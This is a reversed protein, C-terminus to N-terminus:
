RHRARYESPTCGVPRHFIRNFFSLETFGSQYSVETIPENGGALERCAAEIRLQQLVEIFTKGVHKKFERAFTARSMHTVQLMHALRIKERFHELLHHLAAQIAPAHRAAPDVTVLSHAVYRLDAGDAMTLTSLIQVFLALRTAPPAGELQRLLNGLARATPGHYQIGRHANRFGAILVRAEPMAWFGHSAPFSWRLSLGAAGAQPRWHHLVNGGLLLLEGPWLTTVQNGVVCEGRGERYLTLELDPHAIWAGGREENRPYRRTTKEPLDPPADEWRLLRYSSNAPLPERLPAPHIRSKSAM